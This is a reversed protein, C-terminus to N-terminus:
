SVGCASSLPRKGSRASVAGNEALTPKVAAIAASRLMAAGAAPSAAAAGVVNPIMGFAGQLKELSPRSHEPASELSYIPFTQM